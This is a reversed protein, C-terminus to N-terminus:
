TRAIMVENNENRKVLNAHFLRLNQIELNNYTIMILLYKIEM